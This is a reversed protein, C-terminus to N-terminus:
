EIADFHLPTLPNSGAEVLGLKGGIKLTYPPASNCVSLLTVSLSPGSPRLQETLEHM